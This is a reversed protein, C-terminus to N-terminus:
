SSIERAPPPMWDVTCAVRAAVGLLQVCDAAMRAWRSIASPTVVM